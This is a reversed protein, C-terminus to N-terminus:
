SSFLFNGFFCKSVDSLGDPLQSGKYCDLSEDESRDYVDERLIFKYSKLKGWQIEQSFHLPVARCLTKRWYLISSNKLIPQAYLAGQLLFFCSILQNKIQWLTSCNFKVKRAEMSILLAIAMKLIFVQCLNVIIGLTLRSFTKVAMCHVSKWMWM